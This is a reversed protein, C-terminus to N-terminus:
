SGNYAGKERKQSANIIVVAAEARTASGQPRFTNDPYGKIIGNETAAVVVEGAWPSISGSDNFSPKGAASPIKAARVIMAAMQERTIPEEPRFTNDDFGGAIGNAAAAAIYDKAWHEATDAFTEGGRVEFTFAKVLATVFEARTINRDPKFTGDPYGSIAGLGVLEKISAEAWHGAIDSLEQGTKAM